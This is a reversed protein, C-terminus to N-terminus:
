ADGFPFQGGGLFGGFGEVVEPYPHSRIQDPTVLLEGTRFSIVLGDDLFEGAGSVTDAIFSCLHDRYCADRFQVPADSGVRVTPWEYLNTNGEDFQLTVCNAVFWVGALREGVLRQWGDDGGLLLSDDAPAQARDSIGKSIFEQRAADSVFERSEPRGHDDLRYSLRFRESSRTESGRRARWTRQIRSLAFTVRHDGWRGEETSTATETWEM